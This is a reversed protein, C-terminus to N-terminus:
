SSGCHVQNEVIRQVVIASCRKKRIIIIIIIERCSYSCIDELSLNLLLFYQSGGAAQVEKSSKFLFFVIIGM